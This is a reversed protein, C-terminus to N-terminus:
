KSYRQENDEITSRMYSNETCNQRCQAAHNSTSVPRAKSHINREKQMGQQYENEAQTFAHGKKIIFLKLMILESIRM